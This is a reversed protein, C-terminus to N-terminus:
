MIVKTVKSGQRKIYLGSTPNDVRIGQLNFYEVPANEDAAIDTIASTEGTWTFGFVRMTSGRRYLVYNGPTLSFTGKVFAYSESNEDPNDLTLVDTVAAGTTVNMCLLDKNDGAVHGGETNGKQRRYYVSLDVNGKSEVSLATSGDQVGPTPTEPTPDPNDNRLQFWGTFEVGCITKNETGGKAESLATIKILDNDVLTGAAIDDGSAKFENQASATLAMAAVAFLTFIKKM